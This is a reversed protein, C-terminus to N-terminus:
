FSKSLFKLTLRIILKSRYHDSIPVPCIEKKLISNGPLSVMEGKWKERRKDERGKTRPQHKM